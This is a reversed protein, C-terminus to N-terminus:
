QGTDEALPCCNLSNVDPTHHTGSSATSCYCLVKSLTPCHVPVLVPQLDQYLCCGAPRCLDETCTWICWRTWCSEHPKDGKTHAVGWTGGVHPHPWPNLPTIHSCKVVRGWLLCLFHETGGGALRGRLWQSTTPNTALSTSCGRGCRGQTTAQHEKVRRLCVRGWGKPPGLCFKIHPGEEVVM